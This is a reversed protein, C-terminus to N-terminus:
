SLWGWSCSRDSGAPYSDYSIDDPVNQPSVPVSHVFWSPWVTRSWAVRAPEGSSRFVEKPSHEGQTTVVVRGNGVLLILRGRLDERYALMFIVLVVSCAFLTWVPYQGGFGFLPTFLGGVADGLASRINPDMVVLLM